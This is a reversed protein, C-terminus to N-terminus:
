GELGANIVLARLFGFKEVLAFAFIDKFTEEALTESQIKGRMGADEGEFLFGMVVGEAALKSGDLAALNNLFALFQIYDEVVWLSPPTAIFTIQSLKMLLALAATLPLIVVVIFVALAFLFTDWGLSLVKAPTKITKMNLLHRQFRMMATKFYKLWLKTNKVFRLLILLSFTKMTTLTHDLDNIITPDISFGADQLLARRTPRFAAFNSRDCMRVVSISAMLLLVKSELSWDVTNQTCWTNARCDACWLMYPPVLEEEAALSGSAGGLRPNDSCDRLLTSGIEETMAWVDVAIMAALGLACGKALTGGLAMSAKLSTSTSVLAKSTALEILLM